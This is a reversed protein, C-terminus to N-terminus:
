GKIVGRLAAMLGRKSRLYANLSYGLAGTGLVGTALGEAGTDPLSPTTTLTKACEPSTVVKGDATKVSVKIPTTLSAGTAYEHVATPNTGTDATKGDAFQWLYNTITTNSSSATATYTWKNTNTKDQSQDLKVCTVTNVCTNSTTIRAWSNMENIGESKIWANNTLPTDGCRLTTNVKTKYVIYGNSGNTYTGLIDVGGTSFLGTDSLKLGGAHAADTLMVSGPVVTVNAPLQDRLHLGTVTGGTKNQYNLVWSVTDGSQVGTLEKQTHGSGTVGVVKDFTFTPPNIKVKLTVYGSYEFCGPWNGDNKDYGIPAGTTVITDDLQRGPNVTPSTKTANNFIRASGAEYSLSFGQAGSTVFDLSDFVVKPTANSSGIFANAVASRGFTNPLAVRVSTDKSVGAGKLDAGNLSSDANNHIYIRVLAEDKGVVDISDKFGGDTTLNDTKGDFFTRENGYVDTDVFSNFVVHDAGPQGKIYHLAPRDPGWTSVALASAVPILGVMVVAIAAGIRKVLSTKM